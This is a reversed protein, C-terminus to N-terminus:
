QWGLKGLSPLLLVVDRTNPSFLLVRQPLVGSGNPIWRRSNFKLGCDDDVWGHGAGTIM